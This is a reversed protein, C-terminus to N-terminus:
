AAREMMLYVTEITNEIVRCTTRVTGESKGVTKAVEQLEWRRYYRLWFVRLEEFARSQNNCGKMARLYAGVVQDTEEARKENIPEPSERSGSAMERSFASMRPWSVSDGAREPYARSWEWLLDRIAIESM